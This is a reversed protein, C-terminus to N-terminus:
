SKNRDKLTRLSRRLTLPDTPFVVEFWECVLPMVMSPERGWAECQATYIPWNLALWGAKSGDSEAYAKCFEDDVGDFPLIQVSKTEIICLPRCLGDLLISLTGAQPPARGSQEYEWLLSSTTRKTGDLIYRAGADALAPNYGVQFADYFLEARELEPDFERWFNILTSPTDELRM